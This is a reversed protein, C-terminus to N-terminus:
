GISAVNKLSCYIGDDIIRLATNPLMAAAVAAIPATPTAMEAKAILMTADEMMLLIKAGVRSLVDILETFGPM